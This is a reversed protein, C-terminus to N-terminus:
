DEVFLKLRQLADDWQKSIEDLTYRAEKFAKPELVFLNQRGRRIGRILGSGELVVLHKTIAQRTISSGESLQTISHPTGDGLKLLLTLRTEDGLAAFLPVNRRLKRITQEHRKASM